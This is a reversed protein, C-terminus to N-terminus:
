STAPLFTPLGFSTRSATRSACRSLLRVTSIRTFDPSPVLYTAKRSPLAHVSHPTGDAFTAGAPPGFWPVPRAGTGVCGQVSGAFTAGAPFPCTSPHRAQARRGESIKRPPTFGTCGPAFRFGPRRDRQLTALVAGKLQDQAHKPGWNCTLNGGHLHAQDGVAFRTLMRSRMM